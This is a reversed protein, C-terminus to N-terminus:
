SYTSSSSWGRYAKMAHAPVKGKSKSIIRRYVSLNELLGRDRLNRLLVSTLTNSIECNHVYYNPLLIV